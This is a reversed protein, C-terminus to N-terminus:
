RGQLHDSLFIENGRTTILHHNRLLSLGMNWHGGRPELSLAAGLNEKTIGSPAIEVLHQLMERAPRPLADLWIAILDGSDTKARIGTIEFASSQPTVVDGDQIIYGENLLDRKMSNFHGGRTKKGQLMMILGWTMPLPSHRCVVELTDRMAKTLPADPTRSLAKPAKTKEPAPKTAQTSPAAKSPSPNTGRASKAKGYRQNDIWNSLEDLLEDRAADYGECYGDKHGQSLGLAYGNDYAVTRAADIEQPTAVKKAGSKRREKAQPAEHSPAQTTEFLKTLAPIDVKASKQPIIRTEGPQPTRSTDLTRITPFKTRQFLHYDPSWVWGEGVDLAALTNLVEKADEPDGHGKVWEMMANRDLPATLRMAVLTSLMNLVDKNLKAARQTLTILRFGRVRGRRAIRDVESLVRQQAGTPQQAAFEDAEDLVLTLADRNVHYLEELFDAMFAHLEDTRMLSTDLVAPINRTALIQALKKGDNPSLPVDAHEGGFVVIPYGEQKGDASTRLGWFVGLPDVVLVRRELQLLVEILLKALYTKGSGKKGLVAIDTDLIDIPFPLAPLKESM